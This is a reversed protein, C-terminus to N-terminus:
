ATRSRTATVFSVMDVGDFLKKQFEDFSDCQAFYGSVGTLVVDDTKDWTPMKPREGLGNMSVKTQNCPM